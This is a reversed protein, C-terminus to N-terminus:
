AFQNAYDSAYVGDDSMPTQYGSLPMAQSMAYNLAMTGAGGAGGAFSAALKAGAVGAMGAAVDAQKGYVKTAYAALGITIASAYPQLASPLVGAVTSQLQQDAVEALAGGIAGKVVLKGTTRIQAKSFPNSMTRRRRVTKRKVPASRRRRVATTKRKRVAM